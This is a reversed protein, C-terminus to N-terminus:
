LMFMQYLVYVSLVHTHSLCVSLCVFSVFLNPPPPRFTTLGLMNGHPQVVDRFYYQLFAQTSLACYYFTRSVTVYYFDHHKVPDLSFTQKLEKWSWPSAHELPTEKAFILTITSGVTVFTIFVLYM